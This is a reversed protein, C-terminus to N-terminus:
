LATLKFAISMGIVATGYLANYKQDFCATMQRKINYKGRGNPTRQDNDFGIPQLQAWSFGARSCKWRENLTTDSQTHM